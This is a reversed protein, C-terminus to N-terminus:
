WKGMSRFGTEKWCVPAGEEEKTGVLKAGPDKGAPSDGQM